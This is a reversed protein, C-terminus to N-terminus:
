ASPRERHGLRRRLELALALALRREGPRYGLLDSARAVRQLVTNRHTHLRAAARPANEAEDLFIRLTERLRAASASDAALPGLTAHVFETARQEDQAALATIELEAYTAVRGGDPNAALLRHISLAAEHSRRFGSVGRGTPGLAVRVDPDGESLARALDAAELPRDSGIWAWVTTTAAALTLPQRAGAARAVALGAAELASPAADHSDAWIVLATHHRTLDYRLRRGAAATDLPAGDLVLRITEARRALEGGLVQERERQMEAIVRGVVEDVYTFMLEMSADLVAALEAGSSTVDHAAATWRRWLVQQGRRYGQYVADAEIGRRVLTRAFDLAEPPVVTPPPDAARRAVALFRRVNARDSASTEGAIAADAGLIPMTGVVAADMAAVIADVDVEVRDAIEAMVAFVDMWLTHWQVHTEHLKTRPVM